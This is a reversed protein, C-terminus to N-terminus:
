RARSGRAPRGRRRAPPRATRRGARPSARPRSSAAAGGAPWGRSGRPARRAARWAEGVVRDADVRRARQAVDLPGRDGGRDRVCRPQHQVVRVPEPDGVGAARRHQGGSSPSCRASTTSRRRRSCRAHPGGPVHELGRGSARTTMSSAARQPCPGLPRLPPKTELRSRLRGDSRASKPSPGARAQTAAARAVTSAIPAQHSASPTSAQYRLAPSSTTEVAGACSPPRRPRPRRRARHERPRRPRRAPASRRRRHEAAAHEHRLRSRGDRAAPRRAARAAARGRRASRRPCGRAVPSAAVAGPPIAIRVAAPPRTRAGIATNASFAAVPASGGSRLRSVTEELWM